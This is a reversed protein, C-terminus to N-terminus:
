INKGLEYAQQCIEKDKIEGKHLVATGCIVGAEKVTRLVKIFGRLSEITGTLQTKDPTASTIIFYADKQKSSERIEYERAFMRDILLKLQASVSYFYVPTALVLVDTDIVKQIIKDADDNIICERNHNRCYECALCPSLSYDNLNIKEVTVNAEIAGKLFQECLYESNGNRRPSSSIILCKKTM